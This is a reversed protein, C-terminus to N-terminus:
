PWPRPPWWGPRCSMTLTSYCRRPWDPWCGARRAAPRITLYFHTLYRPHPKLRALEGHCVMCCIFLGVLFLPIGIRVPLIGANGGFDAYAMAALAAGLLEIYPNRRYWGAREFCLIFSLLYVSLPLVWLLPIAAVNQSLHTTVALLLASACAPLLLWLAYLRPGPKEGAEGGAKETEPAPAVGSRFALLGCLLAFAVYGISWMAAQRHSTYVPEFLVPYSLLAFMSGANSLAYLRYPM